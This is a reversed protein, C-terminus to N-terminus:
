ETGLLSSIRMRRKAWIDHTKRDGSDDSSDDGCCVCGRKSLALFRRGIRKGANRQGNGEEAAKIKESAQSRGGAVNSDRFAKREQKQPAKRDSGPYTSGFHWLVTSM